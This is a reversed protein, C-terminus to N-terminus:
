AIRLCRFVPVKAFDLLVAFLAAALFTYIVVSVPLPAMAIGFIALAAM